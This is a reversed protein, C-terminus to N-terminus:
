GRSLNQKEITDGLKILAGLGVVLMVTGFIVIAWDVWEETDPGLVVSTTMLVGVLMVAIAALLKQTHTV